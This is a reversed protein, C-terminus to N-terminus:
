ALDKYDRQQDVIPRSPTERQIRQRLLRLNWRAPIHPHFVEAYHTHAVFPIQRHVERRSGFESKVLIDSPPPEDRLEFWFRYGIVRPEEPEINTVWVYVERGHRNIFPGPHKILWAMARKDSRFLVVKSICNWIIFGIVLLFYICLIPILFITQLILKLNEM